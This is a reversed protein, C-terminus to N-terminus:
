ELQQQILEVISDTDFNNALQYLQEALEPNVPRLAEIESLLEFTDGMEALDLLHKAQTSSLQVTISIPQQPREERTKAEIMNVEIDDSIPQQEYLWEIHLLDQLNKLLDDVHIPKALFADFGSEFSKQQNFEFISASTAIVPLTNGMKRIRRVTEFGDIIPMVLDTIIADPNAKYLLDLCEQGDSAELVKFGLDTLLHTIVTRNEWKDDSIIVTRPKGKIGIITPQTYLSPLEINKVTPLPLSISITTGKGLTSHLTLTGDMLQILRQTIALGLGTGEPRFYKDGAQQFPQFILDREDPDIGIGTDEIEFCLTDYQYAVKFTVGGYKTFKIANGLINILIQRVRKEDARVGNPLTSMKEFIFAIGKQQARMEFTQVMKQLFSSLHVDTPELEIHDAEIKSLDLIDNILTLLHEGSHKVISVGEKQKPTLNPERIFIQAYGLIANLPTRLEHSMNALFESKAHNAAEAVKLAATREQIQQELQHNLTNLKDQQQAIKTTMWNFNHSLVGFEGQYHEVTYNYNGTSVAQMGQTLNHLPYTVYRRIIVSVLIFITIFGTLHLIFNQWFGAWIREDMVTAPLKISLIGRLDGVEYNYATDYMAQIAAPAETKEGHCKLCYQEVWIPRAYLFFKEGHQYFPRFLTTQQPYQRFYEMAALETADARHEPNRPQDSVNEFSFESSDWNHYDQSIRGMSHAPLFGVTKETLEIGSDLFQKQYVRRLSMLVNRVKEAQEWLVHEANRKANHYNLTEIISFIVLLAVGINLLLRTQLNM